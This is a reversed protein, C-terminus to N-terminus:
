PPHLAISSSCRLFSSFGLSESSIQQSVHLAVRTARCPTGCVHAVIDGFHRMWLGSLAMGVRRLSEPVSYSYLNLSCQVVLMAENVKVSNNASM